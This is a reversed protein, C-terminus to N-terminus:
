LSLENIYLQIEELSNISTEIDSLARQKNLLITKDDHQLLAKIEDVQVKVWDCHTKQIAKEPVDTANM